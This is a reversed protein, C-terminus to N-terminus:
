QLDSLTDSDLSFAIVTFAIELMALIIFWLTKLDFICMQRNMNEFIVFIIVAIVAVVANLIIIPLANRYDKKILKYEGNPNNRDYVIQINDEYYLRRRISMHRMFLLFASVAGLIAIILNALSWVNSKDSFVSVGSGMSLTLTHFIM